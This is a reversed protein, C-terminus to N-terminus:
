SKSMIILLQGEKVEVFVDEEAFENSIGLPYHSTLTHNTLPYEAGTITVGKCIDSFSFISFKYDPRRPISISNNILTMVINRRDIMIISLGHASYAFINQINAITHDLRRGMGGVILIQRYGEQAAHDICLATDTENKKTPVCITEIHKPIRAKVSDSDGIVLNPAINEAVAFDYGGDACIVYDKESIDVLDRIKGKIHSTIIICKEM